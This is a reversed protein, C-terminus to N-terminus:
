RNSNVAAFGSAAFVQLWYGFVEGGWGVLAWNWHCEYFELFEHENFIM